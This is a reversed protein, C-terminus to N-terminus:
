RRSGEVLRETGSEGGDEPPIGGPDPGPLGRSESHQRLVGHLRATPRDTQQFLSAAAVPDAGARRAPKGAAPRAERSEPELRYRGEREGTGPQPQHREPRRSTSGKRQQGAHRSSRRGNRLGALGQRGLDRQLGDRDGGGPLGGHRRVPPRSKRKAAQVIVSGRELRITLDSATQTTSFGSRERLEVISGDKLQLM